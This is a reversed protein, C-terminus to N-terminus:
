IKSKYIISKIESYNTIGFSGSERGIGSQKFGGITMQPYDEFLNIWIEAVSLIKQLLNMNWPIM